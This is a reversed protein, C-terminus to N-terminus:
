KSGKQEAKQREFVEEVKVRLGMVDGGREKEIMEIARGEEGDSLKLADLIRKESPLGLEGHPYTKYRAEPGKNLLELRREGEPINFFRDVDEGSVEALTEPQWKPQTPPKRLLRASVGETFDPHEMFHSAIQHERQFTESIDWERGLQLQRLTVKLSTPSRENITSITKSAWDQHQGNKAEGDLAQLIEAISNPAFCRDITSRLSGALLIPESHQPPLSTCYENITTNLMALVADRSFHDPITIEALRAELPPLSSSPLYHTAIGQWFAQVGKLRESTLALYRGLQGDLRPLFFSGGVEPFFGISTEPMAFVTRETAIRFPAHVSLGVGGGMTVGDMFAIYPKSYTAILHDLKYELAFYDKSKQIGERGTTNQQALVAVDGGACLARDGAGKMIVCNLMDSNEWERLRPIIKRCMSGDLSNLKKPRNLEVTRVGYSSNFLVDEPDDGPLAQPLNPDRETAMQRIQPDVVKARLPM